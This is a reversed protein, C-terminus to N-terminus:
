DAAKLGSMLGIGLRETKHAVNFLNELNINMWGFIVILLRKASKINGNLYGLKLNVLVM